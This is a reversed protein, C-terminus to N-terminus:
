KIESGKNGYICGGYGGYRQTIVKGGNKICTEKSSNANKEMFYVPIFIMAFIILIVAALMFYFKINEKIM